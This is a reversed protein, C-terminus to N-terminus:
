RAPTGFYFRNRALTGWAGDGPRLFETAGEADSEAEEQPGNMLTINEGPDGAIEVLQFRYEPNDDHDIDGGTGFATMRDEVAIPHDEGDVVQVAYLKGGVLGEQEVANGHDRKEGIYVYVQGPTSDDMMMVNTKDGGNPSAVVNEFAARGLWPLEFSEGADPGS